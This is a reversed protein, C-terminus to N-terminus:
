YGGKETKQMRSIIKSTIAICEKTDGSAQAAKAKELRAELTDDLSESTAKATAMEDNIKQLNTACLDDAAFVPSALLAAAIFLGTIATRKM